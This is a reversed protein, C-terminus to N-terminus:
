IFLDKQEHRITRAAQVTDPLGKQSPGFTKFQELQFQEDALSRGIIQGKTTLPRAGADLSLNCPTIIGAIRRFTSNRKNLGPMFRRIFNFESFM